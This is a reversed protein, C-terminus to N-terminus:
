ARRRTVVILVLLALAVIVLQAGFEYFQAGTSVFPEEVSRPCARGPACRMSQTAAAESAADGGFLDSLRLALWTVVGGVLGQLDAVVQGVGGGIDSLLAQTDINTHRDLIDLTTLILTAVSALTGTIRFLFDM